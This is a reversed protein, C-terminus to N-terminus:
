LARPYASLQGFQAYAAPTEGVVLVKADTGFVGIGRLLLAFKRPAEPPPAPRASARKPLFPNEVEEEDSEFFPNFAPERAAPAFPNDALSSKPRVPPAASAPGIPRAAKSGRDADEWYDCSRHDFSPDACPPILRFTPEDTVDVIRIATM